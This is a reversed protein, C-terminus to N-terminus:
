AEADTADVGRRIVRLSATLDLAKVLGQLAVQASLGSRNRQSMQLELEIGNAVVVVM